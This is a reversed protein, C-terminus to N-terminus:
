RPWINIGKHYIEGECYYFSHGRLMGNVRIKAPKKM